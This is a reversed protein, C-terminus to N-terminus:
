LNIGSKSAIQATTKTVGCITMLGRIIFIGCLLPNIEDIGSNSRAYLLYPNETAAFRKELSPNHINKVGNLLLFKIPIM